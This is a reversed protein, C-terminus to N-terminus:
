AQEELVTDVRRRIELVPYTQLGAIGSAVTYMDEVTAAPNINGITRSSTTADGSSNEGTQVKYILDVESSKEVVAM